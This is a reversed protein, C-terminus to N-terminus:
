ARPSLRSRAYFELILNIAILAPLFVAAGTLLHLFEDYAEPVRSATWRHAHSVAILRLANVFLTLPAAAILAALAAVPWGAPGRARGAFHWGLLAATMLFFDTASCTATVILPQGAFALMWGEEGAVAPTGTLGGALRAAGAVFVTTDVTPAAKLLVVGAGAAGLAVFFPGPSSAALRRTNVRKDERHTVSTEKRM